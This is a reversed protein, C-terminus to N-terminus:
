LVPVRSKTEWRKIEPFSGFPSKLPFCGIFGARFISCWPAYHQFDVGASRLWLFYHLHQRFRKRSKNGPATCNFPDVNIYFRIGQPFTAPRTVAFHSDLCLCLPQPRYWKLPEWYVTDPTPLAHRLAPVVKFRSWSLNLTTGPACTKLNGNGSATWGTRSHSFVLQPWQSVKLELCKFWSRFRERRLCHHRGSLPPFVSCTSLGAALM